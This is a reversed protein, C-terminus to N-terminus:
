KQSIGQINCRYDLPQVINRYGLQTSLSFALKRFAEVKIGCVGPFSDMCFCVLSAIHSNTFFEFNLRSPSSARLILLIHCRHSFSGRLTFVPQFKPFTQHLIGSLSNERNRFGDASAKSKIKLRGAHFRFRTVSWLEAKGLASVHFYM